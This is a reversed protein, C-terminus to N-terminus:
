PANVNSAKASYKGKDKKKKEREDSVRQKRAARKRDARIKQGRKKVERREAQGDRKKVILALQADVEEHPETSGVEVGLKKQIKEKERAIIRLRRRAKHNLGEEADSQSGHEGAPESAKHKELNVKTPETDFFFQPEGVETPATEEEKPKDAAVM